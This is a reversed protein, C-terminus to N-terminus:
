VSPIVVLIHELILKACKLGRPRLRRLGEFLKLTSEILDRAINSRDIRLWAYISFMARIATRVEREHLLKLNHKQIAEMVTTTMEEAFREIRPRLEEDSMMVAESPYGITNRFVEMIKVVIDNIDMHLDWADRPFNRAFAYLLALIYLNIVDVSIAYGEGPINMIWGELTRPAVYGKALREFEHVCEYIEEELPKGPPAAGLVGSIVSPTEASIERLKKEIRRLTKLIEAQYELLKKLLKHLDPEDENKSYM